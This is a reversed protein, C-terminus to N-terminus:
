LMVTPMDGDERSESPKRAAASRATTPTLAESPSPRAEPSFVHGRLDRVFSYVGDFFAEFTRQAGGEEFHEREKHHQKKATTTPKATTEANSDKVFQSEQSPGDGTTLAAAPVSDDATLRHADGFPHSERELPATPAPEMHFRLEGWRGGAKGAEVGVYQAKWGNIALGVSQRLELRAFLYEVEIDQSSALEDGGAQDLAPRRGPAIMWKPIRLSLGAPTKLREQGWVELHSRRLFDAIPHCRAPNRMDITSRTRFRVDSASEPLMIDLIRQDVVAEVRLLENKQLDADVRLLMEIAPLATSLKGGLRAWPSPKLYLVLTEQNGVDYVAPLSTISRVLGPVDFSFARVLDQKAELEKATVMEPVALVDLPRLVHGALAVTTTRTQGEWAADEDAIPAEM